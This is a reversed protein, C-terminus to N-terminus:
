RVPERNEAWAQEGTSFEKVMHYNARLYSRFPALHDVDMITGAPEYMEPSLVLLSPHSRELASVTRKVEGPRTYDSLTFLNVPAPNELDLIFSLPFNGFFPARARVRHAVWECEIFRPRDLFAIRGTPTQLYWAAHQQERLPHITALVLAVAVAAYLIIRKSREQQLWWAVCIIAPPSATVLRLISPAGAVGAFLAAGALAILSLHDKTENDERRFDPGLLTLYAFPVIMLVFCCALLHSVGESRTITTGYIRWTNQWQTPYYRLPFVITSSIFSSIGATKIAYSCAAAVSAAAAACAAASRKWFDAWCRTRRAQLLFFLVLALGAAAGKPQTFFAAIGCLFGAIAARSVTVRGMLTLVAGLIAVTSFWQHTAWLANPLALGIFLVGPILASCGRIVRKAILTTLVVVAVALMVMAASPIWAREGFVRLMLAYFYDIGPLTFQSYDRYPLQGNLIRKGNEAFQLPDGWPMLPARPYIFVQFYCSAFAAGGLALLPLKRLNAM